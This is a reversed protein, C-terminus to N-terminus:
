DFRKVYIVKGDGKKYYDSIFAEKAYNNKEYFMRTPFYKEISSTEAILFDAGKERVRDHTAELLIKGIGTGRYDSHTVIWYLDFGHETGAIEGFCSYAVPKGGVEAFLFYYGSKEEGEDLSVQALEVAVPVEFEYFFGTSLIIEKVREVDGERVGARIIVEENKM